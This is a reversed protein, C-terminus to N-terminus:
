AAELGHVDHRAKLEAIKRDRSRLLIGGEVITQAHERITRNAMQLESTKQAQLQALRVNRERLRENEKAVRDREAALRNAEAVAEQWAARPVYPEGTDRFSTTEPLM